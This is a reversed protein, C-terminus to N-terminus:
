TNVMVRLVSLYSLSSKLITMYTEITLVIFRGALFQVPQQSQMIVFSVNKMFKKPLYYWNCSYISHAVDEMQYKLYDGVFSYFFLQLLLTSLVTVTKTIMMADHSKLALIFQFRRVEDVVPLSTVETAAVGPKASSLLAVRESLFAIQQMLHRLVVDPVQVGSPVAGAQSVYDEEGQASKWEAKDSFQSSEQHKEFHSLIADMCKRKTSEEPLNNKKLEEKLEKLSLSELRLRLTDM